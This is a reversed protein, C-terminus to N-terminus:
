TALAGCNAPGHSSMSRRRWRMLPYENSPTGVRM